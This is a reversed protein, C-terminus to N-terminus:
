KMLEKMVEVLQPYTKQRDFRQDFMKKAGLRMEEVLSQDAYLTRIADALAKANGNEVNIGAHYEDLLERYEPSNQTNIVASGAMAYDSVKNIISSVSKGVIPNVAVDCVTLTAMMTGYDLFGMFDAKIGLEGAYAEFDAKLPGDGMVKFVINEIGQDKLIGIADSVTNIDYSHGLAGVYGVWFEESPKEVKINASKEAILTADSGIYISTGVKDKDNCTLGRQVYTKSVAMVRDARAYIRDAQKKMPYFLIDSIVPVSLAM